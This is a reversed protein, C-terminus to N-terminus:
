IHRNKEMDWGLLLLFLDTLERRCIGMTKPIIFRDHLEKQLDWEWMSDTVENYDRGECSYFVHM